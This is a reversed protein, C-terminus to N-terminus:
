KRQVKKRSEMLEAFSRTASKAELGSYMNITHSVESHGLLRRAVEYAGPNADLWNMVAFHRFLHANMEIGIEKRIRKSIRSALQGAGIPGSGDRRPFLWPTGPPCLEPTRNALHKDIMRVLDTPLDFELPRENKVEGETFVLYVRGHGPRQLHHEVHIGALNRIRVPCFLLIAIALADERALAKTFENSKGSPLHNFLREPLNLLRLAQREDQLIRLRNRNKRTIGRQPAAALKGALATLGKRVDPPQNTIKGLNRLLAAVESILKTTQNGTRSLMQRLGREANRPDLIVDLGTVAEVPFGSHALESAIRIIQRRYQVLTVPRLSKSRSHEALPDPAALRMMLADVEELFTAPFAHDDLKIVKQRSALPLTIRPWEPIRRVALNWGNVAARYAREPSKSIENRELAERYAVADRERVQEPPIGRNNLFYVFGGIAPQISRDKSALVIRWLTQWEPSLESTRQRRREVIGFHAMAARADSVANQWSKTSLNLAAPAIKALRPQLWRGFCPIDQPPLGLANAVRNLGSIMDRRRTVSLDLASELKEILESFMPTGNPVFALDIQKPDVLKM